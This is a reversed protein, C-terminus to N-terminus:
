EGSDESSTGGGDVTGIPGALAIAGIFGRSHRAGTVRSRM